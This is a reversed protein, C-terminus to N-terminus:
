QPSPEQVQSQLPTQCECQWIEFCMRHFRVSEPTVGPMFDVAYSAQASTIREGCGDCCGGAAYEGSRRWLAGHPLIRQRLRARIALTAAVNDVRPEETPRCVSLTRTSHGQAKQACFAL